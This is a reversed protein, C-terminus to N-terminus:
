TTCCDANCKYARSKLETKLVGSLNLFAARNSRDPGEMWVLGDRFQFKEFVIIVM